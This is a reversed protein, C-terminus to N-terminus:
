ASYHCQPFKNDTKKVYMYCDHGESTKIEIRSYEKGEYEDIKPLIHDEVEIVHGIVVNSREPVAAKYEEGDIKVKILKYGSIHDLRAHTIFYQGFERLQVSPEVLTGYSFIKVM